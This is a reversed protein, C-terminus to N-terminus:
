SPFSVIPPECRHGSTCIAQDPACRTVTLSLQHRHWGGGLPGYHGPLGGVRPSKGESPPSGRRSPRTARSSNSWAEIQLGTAGNGRPDSWAEAPASRRKKRHTTSPTDLAAHVAVESDLVSPVVEPLAESTTKAHTASQWGAPSRNSAALTTMPRPPSQAASPEKSWQLRPQETCPTTPLFTM